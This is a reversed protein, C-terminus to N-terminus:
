FYEQWAFPIMTREDKGSSKLLYGREGDEKNADELKHRLERETWKEDLTNNWERFLPMAQDISLGFGLILICAVHYTHNHGGHGSVAPGMKRIYARARGLVSESAPVQSTPQTLTTPKVDAAKATAALKELSEMPVVERESPVELM